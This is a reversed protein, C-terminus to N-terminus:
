IVYRAVYVWDFDCMKKSGYVTEFQWNRYAHVTRRVHYGGNEIMSGDRM